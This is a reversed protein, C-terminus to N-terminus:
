VVLYFGNKRNLFNFINDHGEKRLDREAGALTNRFQMLIFTPKQPMQLNKLRRLLTLNAKCMFSDSATQCKFNISIM